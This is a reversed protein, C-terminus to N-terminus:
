RENYNYGSCDALMRIRHNTSSVISSCATCSNYMCCKCDRKEVNITSKQQNFTMLVPQTCVSRRIWIFIKSESDNLFIIRTGRAGINSILRRRDHQKCQVRVCGNSTVLVHRSVYGNSGSSQLGKEQSKIM